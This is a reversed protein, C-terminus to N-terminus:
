YLELTDENINFDKDVWRITICLQEKHSIDTAEDAILSYRVAERIDYLLARLVCHATMGIMENIIDSSLYKKSEIWQQLEPCEEKRLLLLQFLNGELEEHGRIALGQRLLFRLSSLQIKLMKQHTKQSQKLQSSLQAEIGPRKMSDIKMMAERHSISQAHQKFREHAKKWNDFGVSVFASDVTKDFLLGQTACYKCYHCYAKLTTTCLVLWTYSEFWEPSFQRWKNGQLKRTKSLISPSKQQFSPRLVSSSDQCCESTCELTTSSTTSGSSSAIERETLERCDASGTTADSESDM